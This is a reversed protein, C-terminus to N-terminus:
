RRRPRYAGGDRLYRDGLPEDLVLIVETPPVGQCAQAGTLPRIFYTVTIARRGYHVLPRLVRGSADRGSACNDEDVLVAVQTTAPTLPGGDADRRWLSATLGKRFARPECGGSGVWSWEGRRREFTMHGLEPLRGAAFEILHRRHALLFWGRRPQGVEEAGTRLFERLAVAAPNGRREYGRPRRLAARRFPLAGCGLVPASPHVTRRSRPADPGDGNAAVSESSSGGPSAILGGVVLLVLVLGSGAGSRCASTEQAMARLTRGTV